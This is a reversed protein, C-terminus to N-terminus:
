DNLDSEDYFWGTGVVKSELTSALDRGGVKTGSDTRLKPRVYSVRNEANKDRSYAPTSVWSHKHPTHYSKNQTEM